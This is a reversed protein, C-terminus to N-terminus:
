LTDISIFLGSGKEAGLILIESGKEPEIFESFTSLGCKREAKLGKGYM